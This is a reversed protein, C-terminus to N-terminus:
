APFPKGDPYHLELEHRLDQKRGNKMIVEARLRFTGWGSTELRFKEV